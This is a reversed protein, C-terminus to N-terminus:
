WPFVTGIEKLAGAMNGMYHSSHEKETPIEIDNTRFHKNEIKNRGL